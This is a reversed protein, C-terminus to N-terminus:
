KMPKFLIADAAVMGDANKNTITVFVKRENQFKYKGL